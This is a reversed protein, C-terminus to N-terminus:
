NLNRTAENFLEDVTVPRPILRQQISYQIILALSRRINDVGFQIPDIANAAAAPKSERLLRFVQRVAAPDSKLLSEKVVLMHNIPLVGNKECWAQAAQNPAAIVPQLRADKLDGAGVLGAAIEGDLLMQVISKGAPARVATAPDRYEEVHADEFTVWQIRDLDVGHDNQLVGRM